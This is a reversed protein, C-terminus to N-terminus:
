LRITVLQHIEFIRDTHSSVKSSCYAIFNQKLSPFFIGCFHISHKLNSKSWRAYISCWNKLPMLSELFAPLRLSSSLHPLLLSTLVGSNIPWIFFKMSLSQTDISLLHLKIDTHCSYMSNHTLFQLHLLNARLKDWPHESFTLFVNDHCCPSPRASWNLDRLEQHELSRHHFSSRSSHGLSLEWYFCAPEGLGLTLCLLDVWLSKISKKVASAHDIHVPNGSSLWSPIRHQPKLPTWSSALVRWIPDTGRRDPCHM